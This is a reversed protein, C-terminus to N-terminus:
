LRAVNKLSSTVLSIGQLSCFRVFPRILRFYRFVAKCSSLCWMYLLGRILMWVVDKLWGCMMMSRYLRSGLEEETLCLFIYHLQSIQLSLWFSWLRSYRPIENESSIPYSRPYEAKAIQSAVRFSNTVAPVLVSNCPCFAAALFFCLEEVLIRKGDCAV